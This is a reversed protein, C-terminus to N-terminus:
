SETNIYVNWKTGLLTIVTRECRESIAMLQRGVIQRRHAGMNPATNSIRHRARRAHKNTTTSRRKHRGTLQHAHQSLYRQRRAGFYSDFTVRIVDREFHHLCKTSTTHVADADTHLRRNIMHQLRKPSGMIWLIHLARYREHAFCPKLSKVEVNNIARCALRKIIPRSCQIIDHRKIRWM